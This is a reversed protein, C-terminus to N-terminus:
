GQRRHKQWTSNIHAGFLFLHALLYFWILVLSLLGATGGILNWGAIIRLYLPFVQAVIVFAIAIVVAGPVVDEVEQGAAPAIRFIAGFMMIAFLTAIAYSLLQYLGSFIRWQELGLPLNERDIGLVVTPAISAIVSIMFLVGFLVVSVFGRIRQQLPPHDPVQYVQNMARSLASFFTSGIWLFGVISALGFAGPQERLRPLVSIGEGTLDEPVLWLILDVAQRYGEETRLFLGVISALALVTPVIALLAFYAVAAALDTARSDRFGEIMWSATQRLLDRWGGTERAMDAPSPLEERFDQARRQLEGISLNPDQRDNPEM